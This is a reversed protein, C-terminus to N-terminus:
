LVEARNSQLNPTRHSVEAKKGATFFDLDELYGSVRRIRHIEDSGCKPCSDFTGATDCRLCRDLPFNFGLYSVGSRTAAEIVERIALTNSLPAANFEIYTICGGNSLAHFPGEIEVKRWPGVRSDVDVHFSNTYFAKDTVPHPYRARDLEPFRGSIYEGSSALLTFNLGTEERYGDVTQRMAGVFALARERGTASAYFKEGTLVEMTESLGIFGLSLTGRKLVAELDSGFDELWLRHDRNCPFDDASLALLREYRHLLLDRVVAARERWRRRLDALKADVSADPMSANVELALRPLNLTVCAINGRGVSRNEGYIDTVVRSRCGMVGVKWPDLGANAASDFLLYTPIMKACTCALALQLLDENPDGAQGNIGDKVKFIINPKITDFSADKFTELVYRTTLRGVRGTALGLNLTVYYTTQGGRDRTTNCWDIFAAIAGRLMRRNGESDEIDLRDFFVQLEGDFNPFGIGGSQENGLRVVIHRYYDFIGTIKSFDDAELFREFPFGRVIDVQLCNYTLGHAELDHIHISGDRHLSSFRPELQALVSAQVARTGAEYVTGIYSKRQAANSIANQMM